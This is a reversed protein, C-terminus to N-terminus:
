QGDLVARLRRAVMAPTTATCHGSAYWDIESQILARLQDTAARAAALADAIRVLTAEEDVEGARDWTMCGAAQRQVGARDRDGPRITRGDAYTTSALQPEPRDPAARREAARDLAAQEYDKLTM